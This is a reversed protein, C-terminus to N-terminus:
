SCNLTHPMETVVTKVLEDNKIVVNCKLGILTFGNFSEM